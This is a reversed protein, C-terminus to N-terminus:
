DWPDVGLSEAHETWSQKYGLYEHPFHNSCVYFPPNKLTHFTLMMLARDNCIRCSKFKQIYYAYDLPWVLSVSRYGWVRLYM